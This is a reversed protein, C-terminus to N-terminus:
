QNYFSHINGNFLIKAQITLPANGNSSWITPYEAGALWTPPEDIGILNKVHERAVKSSSAAVVVVFHSEGGFSNKGKYEVTYINNPNM